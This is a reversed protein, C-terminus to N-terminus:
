IVKNLTVERSRIYAKLLEQEFSATLSVEGELTMEGHVMSSGKFSGRYERLVQFPITKQTSSITLPILTSVRILNPTLLDERELETLKPPVLTIHPLSPTEPQLTEKKLALNGEVERVGSSKKGGFVAPRFMLLLSM